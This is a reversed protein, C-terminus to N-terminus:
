NIIFISYKKFTTQNNEKTVDKKENNIKNDQGNFWANPNPNKLDLINVGNFIKSHFLSKTELENKLLPNFNKLIKIQTTASRDIKTKKQILKM